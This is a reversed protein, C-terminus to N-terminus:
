KRIKTMLKVNLIYQRHDMNLHSAMYKMHNEVFQSGNAAVLTYRTVTNYASDKVMAELEERLMAAEESQLFEKQGISSGM